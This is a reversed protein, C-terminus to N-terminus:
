AILITHLLYYLEKALATAFISIVVYEQKNCLSVRYSPIAENSADGPADWILSPGPSTEHVIPSSLVAIAEELFVITDHYCGM